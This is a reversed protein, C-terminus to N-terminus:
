LFWKSKSQGTLGNLTDKIDTPLVVKSALLHAKSNNLHMFASYDLSDSVLTNLWLSDAVQKVNNSDDWFGDVTTDVNYAPTPVSADTVLVFVNTPETVSLIANRLKYFGITRM